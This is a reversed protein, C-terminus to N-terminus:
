VRALPIGLPEAADTMRRDYTALSVEIRQEQLFLFTSLHLGDLTRVPSPFPEIARRLIERSLEAIAISEILRRASEGHSEQLQLRHIANWVEYELLRSSIIEQDWFEGPPHRDEALLEALAVSTDLYIM